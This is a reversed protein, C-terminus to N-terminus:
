SQKRSWNQWIWQADFTLEHTESLKKQLFDFHMECNPTVPHWQVQLNKVRKIMGSHVMSGVVAFEMGEINVKMVDVDSLLCLKQWVDEVSYIDVLETEPNDAYPGTMSGKISFPLKITMAGIGFNYVHIKMVNSLNRIQEVQKFFRHVPELVHVTCGYQKWMENAWFGEYGGCDLCVSDPTLDYIYRDTEHFPKM